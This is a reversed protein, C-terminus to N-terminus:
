DVVSVEVRQSIALMQIMRRRDGYLKGVFGGWRSDYQLGSSYGGCIRRADPGRVLIVHGVMARIAQDGYPSQVKSKAQM